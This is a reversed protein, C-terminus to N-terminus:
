RCPKQALPSGIITTKGFLILMEHSQRGHRATLIGPKVHRGDDSGFGIRHPGVAGDRMM